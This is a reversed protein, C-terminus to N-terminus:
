GNKLKTSVEQQAAPEPVAVARPSPPTARGLVGGEANDPLHGDALLMWEEDTCLSNVTAIIQQDGEWRRINGNPDGWFPWRTREPAPEAQRDRDIADFLEAFVVEHESGKLLRIWGGNWITRIKKAIGLVDQQAAPEPKMAKEQFTETAEM